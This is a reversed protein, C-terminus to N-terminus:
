EELPEMRTTHVRERSERGGHRKWRARWKDIASLEEKRLVEALEPKEPGKMVRIVRPRRKAPEPNEIREYPYQDRLRNWVFRGPSESSWFELFVHPPVGDYTYVAGSLFQVQLQADEVIYRISDVNSSAMPAWEGSFMLEEAPTLGLLEAATGEEAMPPIAEPDTLRARPEEQKQRLRNWFDKLFEFPM